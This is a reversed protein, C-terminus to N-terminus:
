GTGAGNYANRYRRRNYIRCGFVICLAIIGILVCAGIPILIIYLMNSSIDESTNSSFGSNSSRGFNQQMKQANEAKMKKFDDDFTQQNM